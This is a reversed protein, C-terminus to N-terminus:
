GVPAGYDMLYLSYSKIELEELFGEVINAMADFSYDFDAMAPQESRGFGPYDPAILHYDSSLDKILNRFMYSSTPYGHLLLLTPADKPGAERYFIDLGNVEVTHYTTPYQTTTKEVTGKTVDEKTYSSLTFGALIAVLTILSFKIKTKM